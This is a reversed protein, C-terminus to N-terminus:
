PCGSGSPPPSAATGLDLVLQDGHPALQLRYGADTPMRGASTHQHKLLGIEELDGMVNRVTAASVDLGYRRTVTQSFSFTLPSDYRYLLGASLNGFRHLNFNYTSWM